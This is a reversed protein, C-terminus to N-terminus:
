ASVDAGNTRTGRMVAESHADEITKTALQFPGESPVTGPEPMEARLARYIVAGTIDFLTAAGLAFARIRGASRDTLMRPVKGSRRPVFGNGLEATDGRM